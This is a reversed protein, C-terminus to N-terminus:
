FQNQGNPSVCSHIGNLYEMVKNMNILGTVCALTEEVRRKELLLGEQQM